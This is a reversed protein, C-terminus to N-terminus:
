LARPLDKSFVEFLCDLANCFVVLFMAFFGDDRWDTSLWFKVLFELGIRIYLGTDLLKASVYRSVKTLSLFFVSVSDHVSRELFHNQQILADQTHERGPSLIDVLGREEVVGECSFPFVDRM